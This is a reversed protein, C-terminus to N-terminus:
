DLYGEELFGEDVGMMGEENFTVEGMSKENKM